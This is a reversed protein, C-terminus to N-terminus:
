YMDNLHVGFNRSSACFLPLKRTATLVCSESDLPWLSERSWPDTIPLSRLSAPDWSKRGCISDQAIGVSLNTTDLRSLKFRVLWYQAVYYLDNQIVPWVLSAATSSYGNNILWNAYTILAIARLAPGDRQPRGWTGTFQTGNAEFKPEGLGGSSLDGSPSHIRQLRAQATIYNQIQNQLLPDYSQM